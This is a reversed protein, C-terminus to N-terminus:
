SMAISVGDSLGVLMTGDHLCHFAKVEYDGIFPTMSRPLLRAQEGERWVIIGRDTGMWLDGNGTEKIDYVTRVYIGQEGTFQAMGPIHNNYLVQDTQRDYLALGYPQLGLWYHNGDHTYITQIRNVPLVLGAPNLHFFNFPSPKTSLHVIGENRTLVWLNGRGDTVMDYCFTLIPYNEVQTENDLDVRTLGEICCGWVAHSVSDEVLQHFTRFDSRGDNM